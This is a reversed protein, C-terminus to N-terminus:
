TYWIYEFINLCWDDIIMMYNEGVTGNWDMGGRPKALTRFREKVEQATASRDLGMVSYADRTAFRRVGFRSLLLWRLGSSTAMAFPRVRFVPSLDPFQTSIIQFHSIEVHNRRNESEQISFWFHQQIIIHARLTSSPSSCCLVVTFWLENAPSWQDWASVMSLLQTNRLASISCGCSWMRVAVSHEPGFM